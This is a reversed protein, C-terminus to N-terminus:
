SRDISNSIAATVPIIGTLLNNVGTFDVTKLDESNFVYTSLSPSIDYSYISTLESDTSVILDDDQLRYMDYESIRNADILSEIEGGISGM